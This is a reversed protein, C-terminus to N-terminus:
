SALAHLAPITLNVCRLGCLHMICAVGATGARHAGALCHILVNNGAELNSTVFEFLPRFFGAIEQPYREPTQVMSALDPARRKAATGAAGRSAGGLSALVADVSEPPEEGRWQHAM